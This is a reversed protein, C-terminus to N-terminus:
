SINISEGCNPCLLDSRGGKHYEKGGPSFDIVVQRPIIIYMQCESCKVRVKTDSIPEFKFPLVCNLGIQRRKWSLIKM